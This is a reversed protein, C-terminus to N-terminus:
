GIVEVSVYFEDLIAGELDRIFLRNNIKFLRSEIYENRLVNDPTKIVDIEFDTDINVQVNLIRDFMKESFIIQDILESRFASLSNQM